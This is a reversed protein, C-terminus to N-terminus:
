ASLCRACHPSTTTPVVIIHSIYDGAAGTAGLVQATASAAVTEYEGGMANLDFMTRITAKGADDGVPRILVIDGPALGPLSEKGGPHVMMNGLTTADTDTVSTADGARVMLPVTPSNNIVQISGGSSTHALTWQGATAAVATMTTM